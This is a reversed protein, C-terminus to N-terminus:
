ENPGESNSPGRFFGSVPVPRIKIEEGEWTTRTIFYAAGYAEAALELISPTPGVIKDIMEAYTSVADPEVQRLRDLYEWPKDM